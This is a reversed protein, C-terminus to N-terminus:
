NEVDTTDFTIGYGPLDEESLIIQRGNYFNIVGSHLSHVPTRNCNDAINKLPVTITTTFVFAYSKAFKTVM